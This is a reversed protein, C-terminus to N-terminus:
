ELNGRFLRDREDARGAGSLCGNQREDAAVVIDLLTLYEDVSDIDPLYLYGRQPPMESLHELVHEEERVGDASIDQQAALPYGVVLDHVDAAIDVGVPEYVTERASKVLLDLLASAVEGGTLSLEQGERSRYDVLRLDHDEVLRGRVDVGLGFHEDLVRELLHHVDARHKYDRVPERRYPVRVVYDDERVSLDDFLAAM